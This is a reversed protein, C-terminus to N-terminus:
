KHAILNRFDVVEHVAATLMAVVFGVQNQDVANRMDYNLPVPILRFRRHSKIRSLKSPRVARLTVKVPRRDFIRSRKRSNPGRHGPALGLYTVGCRPDTESSMSIEM